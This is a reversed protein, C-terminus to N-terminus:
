VFPLIARLGDLFNQGYYAILIGRVIKGGTVSVLFRRFPMRVSGATLGAVEFAPNPVASLVFLTLMGWRHMLWNVWRVVREITGHFARPGPLERGRVLEAGLYGGYYATIEGVAMGTGGAAGVLWPYASSDGETAILAQAAATLGPVPIFFTATSVLNTLFISLYSAGSLKASIEDEFILLALAQGIALAMFIVISVLRITRHRGFWETARLVARDLRTPARAAVREIAGEYLSASDDLPTDPNHASM